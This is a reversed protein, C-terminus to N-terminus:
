IMGRTILQSSIGLLFITMLTLFGYWRHTHYLAKKFDFRSILFMLIFVVLYSIILRGFIQGALAISM